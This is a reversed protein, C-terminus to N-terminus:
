KAYDPHYAYLESVTVLQYGAEKLKPIVITAAQASSAYLDHMLIVDGDKVTNMVNDVITKANKSAWDRTDLTWAVVRKDHACSIVTDNKSGYPPRILVPYLHTIEYITEQTVEIEEEIKEKSLTTLQKHSYTHNGIENGELVMRQLVDPANNARSGLIFFTASANNEKLADLIATTYRRTPGDDFTLAVMPKNPNIVKVPENLIDPYPVFTPVTENKLDVADDIDQYGVEFTASNEFLKGEEFYFVIRDKKLVFTDFNDEIASIHSRFVDNDCEQPFREEFYSKAMASLAQMKDENYIDYLHLFEDKQQDFVITEIYEHNQYISEFIMFKISVYRNAKVYSEYSVNFEAKRDEKFNKVQKHFSKRYTEICAQIKKDLKTIDTKPYQISELYKEEYKLQQINEGIEQKQNRNTKITNSFCGLLLTFCLFPCVLKLLKM